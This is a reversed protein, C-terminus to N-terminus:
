IYSLPPGLIVQTLTCLPILCDMPDSKWNCLQPLWFGHFSPFSNSRFASTRLGGRNRGVLCAKWPFAEGSWVSFRSRGGFGRFASGDLLPCFSWCVAVQWLLVGAGFMDCRSAVRSVCLPVILAYYSAHCDSNVRPCHHCYYTRIIRRHAHCRIFLPGVILRGNPTMANIIWARIWM